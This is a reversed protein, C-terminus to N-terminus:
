LKKLQTVVGNSVSGTGGVVDIRAPDIRRIDNAVAAHISSPRVLHMPMAYPGHALADPFNTGSAVVSRPTSTPWLSKIM